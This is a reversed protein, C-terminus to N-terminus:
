KIGALRRRGCEAILLAEAVGDTSPKDLNYFMQPYLEKALAVSDKKTSKPPLMEAKWDCPRFNYVTFGFDLAVQHLAAWSSALSLASYSSLGWCEPRELFFHRDAKPILRTSTLEEFLRSLSLFDVDNRNSITGDKKEVEYPSVPNRFLEVKVVEFLPKVGQNKCWLVAIGGTVGPDGGGILM